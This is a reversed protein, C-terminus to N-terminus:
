EDAADSTYLLCISLDDPWPWLLLLDFSRVNAPPRDTMSHFAIKNCIINWLSIEPPKEGVLRSPHPKRGYARWGKYCKHKLETSSLISCHNTPVVSRPFTLRDVTLDISWRKVCDYQRIVRRLRPVELVYLANRVMGGNVFVNISRNISLTLRLYDYTAAHGNARYHVVDILHFTNLHRPFKDVSKEVLDCRKTGVWIPFKEDSSAKLWENEITENNKNM